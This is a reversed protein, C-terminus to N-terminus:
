MRLGSGATLLASGADEDNIGYAKAQEGLMAQFTNIATQLSRAHADYSTMLTRLTTGGAGQWGKLTGEAAGGIDTIQRDIADKATVIDSVARHMVAVSTKFNGM